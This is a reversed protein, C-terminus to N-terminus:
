ANLDKLLQDDEASMDRPPEPKKRSTDVYIPDNIVLQLGQPTRRFMLNFTGADNEAGPTESLIKYVIACAEDLSEETFPLARFKGECKGFIFSSLNFFDSNENGTMRVAYADLEEQSIKEYAILKETRFTDLEYGDSGRITKVDYVRPFHINEIKNKVLYKIFVKFGEEVNESSRARRASKRVMHPDTPDDKVVSFNGQPRGRDKQYFDRMSRHTPKTEINTAVPAELLDQIKM